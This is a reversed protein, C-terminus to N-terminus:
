HITEFGKPISMSLCRRESYRTPAETKSLSNLLEEGPFRVENAKDKLEFPELAVVAAECIKLKHILYPPCEGHGV